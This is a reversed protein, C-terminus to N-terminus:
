SLIVMCTLGEIDVSGINGILYKQSCSCTINFLM